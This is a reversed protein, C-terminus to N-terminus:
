HYFEKHPTQLHDWPTSLVHLQDLGDHHVHNLAHCVSRYPGNSQNGPIQGMSHCPIQGMSHDRVQGKSHDPVPGKSCVHRHDMNHGGVEWPNHGDEVGELNHDVVEEHNHGGVEELNCVKQALNHCVEKVHNNRGLEEVHCAM